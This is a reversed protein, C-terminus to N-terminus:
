RRATRVSRTTMTSSCIPMKERIIEEEASMDARGLGASRPESM